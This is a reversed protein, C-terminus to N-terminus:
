SFDNADKVFYQGLEEEGEWAVQFISQGEAYKSMAAHFADIRDGDCYIYVTKPRFYQNQQFYPAQSSNWSSIDLQTPDGPKGVYLTEIPVDCNSFAGPDMKTVSGNIYFEKIGSLSEFSGNFAEQGVYVVPAPIESLQLNDLYRFAYRNISRLKTLNPFDIYQLKSDFNNGEFAQSEFQLINNDPMFFLHTIAKAADTDFGM